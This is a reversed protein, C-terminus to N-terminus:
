RKKQTQAQSLASAKKQLMEARELLSPLAELLAQSIIQAKPTGTVANIHDLLLSVAPSLEISLRPRDINQPTNTAIMKPALPFYTGGTNGVPAAECQMWWCGCLMWIIGNLMWESIHRAAAVGRLRPGEVASVDLKVVCLVRTLLCFIYGEELPKARAM